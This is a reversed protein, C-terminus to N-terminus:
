AEKMAKALAAVTEGLVDYTKLGNEEMIRIGEEQMTGCMRCFIPLTVGRERRYSTLGLAMNDMRNFGGILVVILAKVQPRGELSLQMARHMVEPTTMGGLECFSAVSLGADHLLDLTLMGTGAGDSILAVDGELPVYTITTSEKVPPTYRYLDARGAALSARLAENSADHDDLVFKADMALLHGKTLGLPNIEALLAGSSFFADQLQDLLDNLEAESAEALCDAIQKRQYAKLRTFPDIELKLLAEPHERAVQEIDMGGMSSVILTPISVGQLTIALYYEKETQIRREALLGHVRHGRINLALIERADRQYGSESTCVRVGGAKGRGGTMVQAKLVFPFPMPAPTGVTTLLRSDPVPIGYRRLLAKGEYEFLDM